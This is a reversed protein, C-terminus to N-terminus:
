TEPQKKKKKKKATAVRNMEKEYLTNTHIKAGSVWWGMKM